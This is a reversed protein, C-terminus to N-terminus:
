SSYFMIRKLLSSISTSFEVFCNCNKEVVTISGLDTGNLRVPM